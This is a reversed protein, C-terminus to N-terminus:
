QCVSISKSLRNKKKKKLPRSEARTLVVHDSPQLSPKVPAAHQFRLERVSCWRLPPRLPLPPSGTNQGLTRTRFFVGNKPSNETKERQHTVPQVSRGDLNVVKLRMEGRKRPSVANIHPFDHKNDMNKSPCVAPFVLLLVPYPLYASSFSSHPCFPKRERLRYYDTSRTYDLYVLHEPGPCPNSPSQNRKLPCTFTDVSNKVPARARTDRSYHLYVESVVRLGIFEIQEKNNRLTEPSCVVETDSSETTRM